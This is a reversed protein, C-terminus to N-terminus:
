HTHPHARSTNCFFRHIRFSVFLPLRNEQSNRSKSSRSDVVRLAEVRMEDIETSRELSERRRALRNSASERLLPLVFPSDLSDVSKCNTIRLSHICFFGARRLTIAFPLLCFSHRHPLSYHSSSPLSITRNLSSHRDVTAQSRETRYNLDALREFPLFSLHSDACDFLFISKRRQRTAIRM